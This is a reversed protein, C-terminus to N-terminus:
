HSILFKQFIYIVNIIFYILLKLCIEGTDPDVFNYSHNVTLHQFGENNLCDYSKWCDSVITTGPLIWEKIIALLTKETRDEVPVVFVKKSGQEYGGFVWQGKVLRGRNYKRKGIKAEDIQVTCGPGGLKQSHKDTWFVCVLTKKCINVDNSCNSCKIINALVGHEILFNILKDNDFSLCGFELLGLM